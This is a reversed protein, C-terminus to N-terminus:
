HIMYIFAILYGFYLSDKWLFNLLFFLFYEDRGSESDRIYYFNVILLQPIAAVVSCNAISLLYFYLLTDGYFLSFMKSANRNKALFFITESESYEFSELVILNKSHVSNFLPPYSHIYLASHNITIILWSNFKLTWM